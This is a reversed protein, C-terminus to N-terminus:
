IFVKVGESIEGVVTGFGIHVCECVKEGRERERERERKREEREMERDTEREYVCVCLGGGFQHM